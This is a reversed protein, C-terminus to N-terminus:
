SDAITGKLYWTGGKSACYDKLVKKVASESHADEGYLEELKKRIITSRFGKAMNLFEFVVERIPDYSDGFKPLAFIVEEQQPMVVAGVDLATQHLMRDSVGSGLIHGQPCQTLKFDFQRRLDTMSIVYRSSLKDHVFGVLERKLDTSITIISNGNLSEPGNEVHNTSEPFSEPLCIERTLNRKAVDPSIGSNKHSRGPGSHRRSREKPADGDTDSVDSMSWEGGSKTRSRTSSTRRRKPKEPSNALQEDTKAKRELDAKSIRLVKCLQQFKADWLMQQRQVVEPHRNIFESDNDLVFEWGKSVRLQAMQDLIDKVDEAPLKIVSAIDKRVVFRKQTFRWMVYDRGRCLTDAPIGSYASYSDKPYLVDSKVVWCGQVLMAMQQLSRLAATPDTGKSLLAILQSFRLVKANKMLAKIQDGLPMTKLEALSLVNNPMPPKENEEEVIKPVLKDMYAENSIHFEAVENMNRAQLLTRESESVSDEIQHHRVNIWNEEDRKKHVYEYSAERRAKAEETERRAFRVTVHKAEEEEEDQSGGDEGDVGARAAQKGDAHDLYGFNPRLQIVGKIPTLHLENDKFQGIVYRAPSINSPTSSLIQKDMKDGQYFTNDGGASDVNLAIQEGKSSAYNPSRTNIALELEVRQQTPKIRAALHTIDDYTMHGPRVPYQFLYLSEALQKSLYVEVEHVVPDDVDETEM